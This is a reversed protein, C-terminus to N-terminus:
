CKHTYGDQGLILNVQTGDKNDAVLIHVEDSEDRWVTINWSNDTQIISITDSDPYLNQIVIDNTVIYEKSAEISEDM